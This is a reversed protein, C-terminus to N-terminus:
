RKMLQLTVEKSEGEALVLKQLAPQYGPAEASVRFEQDPLLGGSQWRGDALPRLFVDGVVGTTFHAGPPLREKVGAAYEVKPKFDKILKGAEDVAKVFLLPENYKVIQIERLDTTPTGLKIEDDARL